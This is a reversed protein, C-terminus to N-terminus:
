GPSLGVERSDNGRARARASLGIEEAPWYVLESGGIPVGCRSLMTLEVLLIVLMAFRM